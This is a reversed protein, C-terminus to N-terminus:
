WNISNLFNDKDKNKDKKHDFIGIADDISDNLIQVGNEDMQNFNNGNIQEDDDYSDRFISPKTQKNPVTNGTITAPQDDSYDSQNFISPKKSAAIKALHDKKISDLIQQQERRQGLRKKYIKLAANINLTM